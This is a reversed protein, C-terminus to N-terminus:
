RGIPIHVTQAAPMERIVHHTVDDSCETPGYANLLPIHPYAALWRRCVEPPLAEGTPIIWRLAALSLQEQREIEHLMAHLLSPVPELISVQEHEVRALLLAPDHTVHDGMIAVRGGVLLVALLQWVSIDFSQSATQAVVDAATLQLADIKADLHNLMGRHEVMAGKPVGTSGSTYIVYALQESLVRAPPNTAARQEQILHEAVAVPPQTALQEIAAALMPLLADTTLILGAGSQAVIQSIRQDPTGPDIPVYAGGAKFIGLIGVLFLLDREALIAVVTEPGVGREILAWALRNAEANLAEYTLSTHEYSAAIANPTRAAQEEFRGQLSVPSWDASTANWSVLMQQQEAPLLLPLASIRQEPDAVCGALLAVFHSALRGITSDAFLDTNYEFAATLSGSGAEVTLTLDFKATGTDVAIPEIQLGPVALPAIPTNQLVFMIQFLPSRSVDREPQLADVLHEFPLDQHAYAGLSVERVRRLIERFTPNGSLDTRLALTNIFCGILGEVESQTRNAIPTGIVLDDQGSYRALLLKFGALLTMFLTVGERQSLAELSQSLAPPLSLSHTAGRFTQVPPRPWDTPLDLAAPAGGLQHKWYSLQQQLVDGQLWARQWLAYDAYQVPLDALQAPVNATFAHYLTIIERILISMSWGDSVIHHMSILLTHEDPKLRLLSARLLPGHRLDFPQRAQDHILREAAATRETEPLADLAVLPMVIADAPNIRQVPEGDIVSAKQAFTTRLAEHRQIVANFSRELAATDLPGLLRLAGALSYARSDPDLQELFWIRQQAFSLPLDQDRSAAVLPPRLLELGASRAREVREALGSITPTEFLMRLPLEVNFTKRVRAMLQTALLSHGGLEFFHDTVGIPESGLVEIWIQVLLAEIPTRPAVVANTEARGSQEPAPLAARDIKGSPTQPLAPLVVADAPIMYAPLQTAVLSRVDAWVLTDGDAPVLYAILRADGARDERLLVVAAQVAPHQQLVAEIEALEIRFGRLKVQHDIRGLFELNGDSRYRALDGTRYLRSGSNGFPDPVFMAATLAPDDFYGRALGDGGIYLEGPVGIPVPQRATDLVYVRVRDIPRGIPVIPSRAAEPEASPEYMTAAITAETPGYANIWRVRDGVTAQWRELQETSIPSSGIILLRLWGPWVVEAQDIMVSWEHWVPAPLNMVTVREAAAFALLDPLSSRIEPPCFVVTAGAILTPFLEEASVDFSLSAFQLVRDGPKLAYRRVFALAHNALAQQSVVVGKPRGTSGSTYILYALQQPQIEVPPPTAPQREIPAADRDVCIITGVFAPLEPLLAQRTILATISAHQIMYNLREHPYEPDLPLYGAGTKLVALLAVVAEASREICVGVISEARVDGARLLQALQNARRELEAYTLQVDAFVIAVADPTQSAQATFLDHILRTNLDHRATDNWDVLQQRREADTLLPLYAISASPEAVIGELLREFHGTMRAIRGAQFLDTSYEVTGRMHQEDQELSLTLDFKATGTDVQVPNLTLGAFSLAPLPMNQLAFMVQVLPPRSPDREPQLEEVLKEFSVDQHAYASLSMDHVRALLELFGPNGALDARLVLTNVFFGILEEIEVLSRGAIPIGVLLDTQGTYRYLVTYWATLLTMFLTTNARRSLAELRAILSNSLQFEYLAGRSSPMPPRPYDAPLELSAPAGHLQRRWYALQEDLVLGQLWGRQWAAYDVYQIPLDPLTVAKQELLAPYIAALERLFIGLSWGDSIIHHITVLLLHEQGGRESRLQLLRARILPGHGLDFPQQAEDITHQRVAHEQESPACDSLDVVPLPLELDPEIVQAPEGDIAEFVTRLAEHRRVILNLSQHLAAIDLPGYLEVAGSINYVASGPELQDLFWLRQQAFSLPQRQDRPVRTIAPTSIRHAPRAREVRRALGAVTPTDFLVGLPLDIAFADRLRSMIQTALLSHGGLDFFSTHVGVREVKLVASWIGAIVQEAETSPAVFAQDLALTAEDPLPLARRDLKGNPTLPLSELFVFAGPLMYEPLTGRLFARLDARQAASEQEAHAVVYAVLLQDGTHANSHLAVCADAVAPYAALAHEIEGIEIRFGRLKVQHDIRGLIEVTGDSRWHGLDGTRVMIAGDEFPCAVFREATLEPRHLYGRSVSEGAVCVEGAIGVPQPQDFADLIYIRNNHLPRGVTIPQGVDAARIVGLINIDSIETLGYINVIAVSAGLQGFVSELLRQEIKEGGILLYHLTNAPQEPAAENLVAQMYSPVADLLHIQQVDLYHLLARSDFKVADSIIHLTRGFILTPFIQNVSIDFSISTILGTTTVAPDDFYARLGHVLNILGQQTVMVGKPRGTSGSTFIIYALQEPLVTRPPNTTPQAALTPWDADLRFVQATHEPLNGVLRDQTLIVPTRSHSLMYQLREAPYAPDLPVYAGGAKLIALMGVIMELSREVMLAVLVDPGVGHDRLHHALQNARANLEAYTLAAGEFVIAPVDPTRAAQAEILQHVAADRPYDAASCNWDHLMTQQEAETLLPLYAIREAPRAVIQALLSQFHGAMRAITTADFLDANYEFAGHLEDSLEAMQLTLDFQAAHHTLPVLEATLSGLRLPAGAEMLAFTALEAPATSTEAHLVPLHQLVFMVQFLPSQAPAREPQLEQALLPFPYEQHAFAAVVTQRARVLVEEFTLAGSLRSRLVVPNVLYGVLEQLGARTRGTTPSGIIIDDQGTYRYLLVQFAAVLTIYLTARSERSLQRLALTVEAPIRFHLIAGRETQAAPRPHDIPLNLTPLQGSLQGLWYSRLEAGSASELLRTQWEVYDTHRLQPAPLDIGTNASLATYLQGLEHLLIALSWFDSISHHISVLLIHEDHSRTYVIARLLPAHELDFPQAAATNLREDLQTESWLAADEWGLDFDLRAHILQAPEGHAVRLSTRLVPHRDVLRQFAQRLAPMDLESKVRLARTINYATSEPRLQQLFWLAQQGHSLPYSSAPPDAVAAPAIAPIPERDNLVDAVLDQLTTDLLRAMPIVVGLRTELEHQLEIAMLSDIGFTSLPQTPDLQAAPMRLAQAFRERLYQEVLQQQAEASDASRLVVDIAADALAPEVRQTDDDALISSSIVRLDGSLYRDRCAYRQIKGSSTKPISGPRILVLAYVQAEYEEAIVRRVAAAVQEVDIHRQQREVEYVLILREEGDITASFAAGAGPRLAAHSQEAALELDAPYLNRGRIIILDKLRGVIFLENERLFGLDGTRLFRTPDGPLQAGFTEATQASQQWYGQAVSPGAVWIEGVQDQGRRTGTAPDVIAIQQDPLCQGSSVLSRAAPDDAAVDVVQYQDLDKAAFARVVPAASKTGGTVLLTAEALGYCPYFATRRFGHPAFAATFRDLTGARIPEAGCFALEWSSLDLEARQEPSIKGVCLDYAFNPAGSITARTDSITKLWRLPQELFAVPSMLTSTGGCYLTELIGGILGMDHYLPLWFVGRSDPSTEFGSQILSTNHLLNGHSLMVGKPTGTSGSTYQLFALGTADIDPENWRSAQDAICDTAIWHLAQLHPYQTLLPAIAKLLDQSTLAITAQADAAISELRQLSKNLRPLYAPVAVVGAYLCSFFATLYELGPPYLLLARTETAGAQQLTAAVSQARQELASYTLSPHIQNGDVLFTYAQKDPQKAARWRLLDVITSTTSPISDFINM